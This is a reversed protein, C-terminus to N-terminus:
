EATQIGTHLRVTWRDSGDPRVEAIDFRCAPEDGGAGRAALFTLAIARLRESKRANVSEIPSGHGRGRRTKVEVFVLIPGHDTPEEAIIDMEGAPCRFNSAIVSWGLREVHARALLEGEAGVRKLNEVDSKM